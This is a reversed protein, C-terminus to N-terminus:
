QKKQSDIEKEVTTIKKDITILYILLGLMITSIVAVVVWIKGESRMADAMDAAFTQHSILM